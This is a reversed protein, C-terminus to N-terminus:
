PLEVPVHEIYETTINVAKKIKNDFIVYYKGASASITSGNDNYAAIDEIPIEISLTQSEGPQLNKTKAYNKLEAISNDDNKEIYIPLVYKGPYNGVNKVTAVVKLGYGTTKVKANTIDFETYSLGHGFPYSIKDKVKGFYRYGVDCGEAHVTEHINPTFKVKGSYPSPTPIKVDIPFNSLSPVDMAAVPWTQTLRGSPNVYGLLVDFLASVGYEGPQWACLIADPLFKWSATEIIGGTNLIVTVPKNLPKYANCVDNILTRETESLNFDDVIKRDAFEGSQRSIVIIAADNNKASNAIISGSFSLQPCYFGDDSDKNEALYENFKYKIYPEYINAICTDVIIPFKQAGNYLSLNNNTQLAGSGTGVPLLQYAGVGFLAISQNQSLPLVNNDNKLLVMGEAAARRSLIASSDLVQSLSINAFPSYVPQQLSLVRCCARDLEKEQLLNNKVGEVIHKVQSKTGPMFLDVGADIQSVTNRSGLWDTVVIGDFNWWNRLVDTLLRKNEMAHLGNIKNYSAMVLKPQGIELAKRFGRLYINYLTPKDVIENVETRNTEQSNVAFHKLTAAVVASQLGKVFYGATYGTLLPDESYYEYARGCLPSRIINMAPALVIDVGSLHAEAGINRGVQYALDKDWTSALCLPIPFLTTRVTDNNDIRVGSPGDALVITRINASPIAQTAGACGPVISDCRGIESVDGLWDNGSGVVLTAKQTVTLHSLCKAISDVHMSETLKAQIFSPFSIIIFTITLFACRYHYPMALIILLVHYQM